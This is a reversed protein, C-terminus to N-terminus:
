FGGDIAIGALGPLTFTGDIMAMVGFIIVGNVAVAFNAIMGAWFYYIMMFMAVAIISVTCAKLGANLNEQGVTPGITNIAIPKESLRAELAGAALVRLEPERDLREGRVDRALKAEGEVVAEHHALDLVAAGGGFGADPGAVHNGLDIALRHVGHFIEPARDLLPRLALRRQEEDM